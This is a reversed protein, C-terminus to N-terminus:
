AARELQELNLYSNLETTEEANLGESKERLLLESLRTKAASFDVVSTVRKPPAAVFERNETQQLRRMEAAIARVDYDFKEALAERYQYIEELMPDTMM